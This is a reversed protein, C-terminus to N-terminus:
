AGSHALSHRQIWEQEHAFQEFNRLGAHEQRLSWIDAEYGVDQFWRYMRALETGAARAFEDWPIRTYRV